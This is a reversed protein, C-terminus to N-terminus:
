MRGKEWRCTTGVSDLTGEETSPGFPPGLLPHSLHDFNAFCTTPAPGVACAQLALLAAVTLVRGCQHKPNSMETNGRGYQRTIRATIPAPGYNGLTGATAGPRACRRPRPVIAWMSAAGTATQTTARCTCCM